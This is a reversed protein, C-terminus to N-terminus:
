IWTVAWALKRPRQVDWKVRLVYRQHKKSKNRKIVEWELTDPLGGGCPPLVHTSDDIFGISLIHWYPGLEIDASGAGIVDMQGEIVDEDCLGLYCLVSYVARVLWSM